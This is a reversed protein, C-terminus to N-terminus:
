SKLILEGFTPPSNNFVYKFNIIYERAHKICRLDESIEALANILYTMLENM